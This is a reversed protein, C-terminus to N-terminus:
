FMNLIDMADAEEIGIEDLEKNGQLEVNNIKPKNSLMQYDSVPIEKKDPNLNTELEMKENELTVNFDNKMNFGVDIRIM